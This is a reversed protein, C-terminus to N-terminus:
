TMHPYYASRATCNSGSGESMLVPCNICPPHYYTRSVLVFIQLNLTGPIQAVELNQRVCPCYQRLYSRASIRLFGNQFRDLRKRDHGSWWVPGIMKAQSTSCTVVWMNVHSSTKWVPHSHSIIHYQMLCSSTSARNQATLESSWTIQEMIRYLLTYYGKM